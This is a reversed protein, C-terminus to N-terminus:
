LGVPDFVRLFHAGPFKDAFRIDQFFDTQSNAVFQVSFLRYRPKGQCNKVITRSSLKGIVDQLGFARIYFSQSHQPQAREFASGPLFM